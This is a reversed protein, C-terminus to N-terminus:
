DGVSDDYMALVMLLAFALGGGFGVAVLGPGFGLFVGSLVVAPLISV